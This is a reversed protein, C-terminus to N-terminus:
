VEKLASLPGLKKIRLISSLAGIVCIGVGVALGLMSVEIREVLTLTAAMDRLLTFIKSLTLSLYNGAVIGVISGMFGLLFVEIMFMAVIHSGKAGIARMIGVERARENVIATFITWTLFMSLVSALVITILFIRNIDKLTAVISGGMESRQIIDVEVIESEIKAGVTYPDLGEKIKVFMLSIMNAKLKSKGKEIIRDINEDTIFIANDLGTGTEELVGVIDFRAGFLVSSDVELLDLDEYARSGLIAEGKKLERGLVEKLWPRVIFDTDQDFAVVKAPPVDCCVGWITELYTQYTIETVGEVQGVRDMLGKDMYFTKVKTELLMEEAYERAGVPVVLIDAGLRASARELSSGVSLIFSSGFVLISVLLGISFVLVATRFSNRKLNKLAVRFINFEL